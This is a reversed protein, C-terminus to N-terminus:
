QFNSWKNFPDWFWVMNWWDSIIYLREHACSSRTTYIWFLYPFLHLSAYLQLALFYLSWSLCLVSAVVYRSLTMVGVTFQLIWLLFVVLVGTHLLDWSARGPYTDLYTVYWKSMPLWFVILFFLGTGTISLLEGLPPFRECEEQTDRVRRYLEERSFVKHWFSVLFCILVLDLLFGWYIAIIRGLFEIFSGPPPGLPEDSCRTMRLFQDPLWISGSPRYRHGRTCVIHCSSRDLIHPIYMHYSDRIELSRQWRENLIASGLRYFQPNQVM